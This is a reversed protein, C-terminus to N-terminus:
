FICILSLKPPFWCKSVHLITSHYIEITDVDLFITKRSTPIIAQDTAYNWLFADQNEELIFSPIAM